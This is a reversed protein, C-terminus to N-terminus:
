TKELTFQLFILDLWRGFKFGLEPMHAVKKFGLAAHLTLSATQDGSIGAVVAHLGARRARELLDLVLARGLGRRHFDPHVYVSNEVTFRYGELNRFPSLAGWGAPRGDLEAM